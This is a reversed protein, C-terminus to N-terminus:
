GGGGRGLHVEGADLAVTGSATGVLLRGGDDIGVARGTGDAWSVDRGELADRDRWAGIVDAQDATLWRQLAGLLRQLTPELDAPELGLTAATDRLEPPFDEPALAV